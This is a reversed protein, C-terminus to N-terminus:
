FTHFSATASCSNDMDTLCNYCRSTNTALPVVLDALVKVCVAVQIVVIRRAGTGETGGNSWQNTFAKLDLWSAQNNALLVADRQEARLLQRRRSREAARCNRVSM